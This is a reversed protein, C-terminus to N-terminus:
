FYIPFFVSIVDASVIVDIFMYFVLYPIDVVFIDDVFKSFYPELIDSVQLVNMGIFFGRVSSVKNSM